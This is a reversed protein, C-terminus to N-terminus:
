GNALKSLTIGAPYAGVVSRLLAIRVTMAFSVYARAASHAM